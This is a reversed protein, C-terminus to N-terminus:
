LRNQRLPGLLVRAEAVPGSLPPYELFATRHHCRAPSRAASREAAMSALAWKFCPGLDERPKKFAGVAIFLLKQELYGEKHRDHRVFAIGRRPDGLDRTMM